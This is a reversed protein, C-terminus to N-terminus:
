SQRGDASTAMRKDPGKLEIMLANQRLRSVVAIATDLEGNKSLRHGLVQPAYQTTVLTPLMRSYRQDVLAFLRELAFDTPSEKGLDDLMLMPVGAYTPLPDTDDAFGAKIEDLIRGMSAIRLSRGSEVIIRAAASALTTKGTGVPGHIWVGGGDLLRSVVERARPHTAHMYRPMLGSAALKRELAEARARERRAEEEAEANKRAATAGECSCPMWGLFREVGCLAFTRPALTRGCFDCTPQNTTPQM